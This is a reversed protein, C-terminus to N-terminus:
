RDDTGVKNEYYFILMALCAKAHALHNLGSESDFDEKANFATLHRLAADIVRSWEMGKKYNNKDYKRAGYEFARAEAELSERTLLSLPPKGSDFKKGKSDEALKPAELSKLPTYMKTDAGITVITDVHELPQAGPKIACMECESWGVLTWIGAKPDNWSKSICLSCANM